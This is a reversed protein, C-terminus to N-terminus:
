PLCPRMCMVTRPGIPLILAFDPRNIFSSSSMGLPSFVMERAVKELSRGTIHEIVAQLYQFGVASYSYGRGPAFLNDRSATGHGLGSSHSLVHRLSITDIYESPPLWPEPLYNNLPEDLSLSGEDVMRLAIYATVAKSNSAVEFLMESTVSQRTLINGVGFGNRWVVKGERILAVAVGPIGQERMYQPIFSELDSVIVETSETLRLPSDKQSSKEPLTTPRGNASVSTLLVLVAILSTIKFKM